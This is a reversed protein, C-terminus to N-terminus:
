NTNPMSSFPTSSQGMYMHPDQRANPIPLPDAPIVITRLQEQPKDYCTPCVLIRKNQLRPGAYDYQFRMVTANYDFGCRDCCSLAEPNSRSIKAHTYFTWGM